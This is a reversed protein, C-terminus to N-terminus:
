KTKIKEYIDKVNELLTYYEYCKNLYASLMTKMSDKDTLTFDKLIDEEIEKSFKNDLSIDYKRNDITLTIKKM